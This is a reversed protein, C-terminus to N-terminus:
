IINENKLNFLEGGGGWKLFTKWTRRRVPRGVVDANETNGRVSTPRRRRLLVMGNEGRTERWNHGVRRVAYVTTRRTCVPVYRKNTRIM